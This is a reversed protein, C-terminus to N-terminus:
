ANNANVKRKTRKRKGSPKKNMAKKEAEEEEHIRKWREWKGAADNFKKVSINNAKRFGDLRGAVSKLESQFSEKVTGILELTKKWEGNTQRGNDIDIEGARIKRQTEKCQQLVQDRVNEIAELKGQKILLSRENEVILQDVELITEQLGELKARTAPDDVDSIKYDMFFRGAQAELVSAL